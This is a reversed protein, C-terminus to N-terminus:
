FDLSIGAYRKFAEGIKVSTINKPLDYLYISKENNYSEM